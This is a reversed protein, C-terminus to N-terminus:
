RFNDAHTIAAAITATAENPTFYLPRLCKTITQTREIEEEEIDEGGTSSNHNHDGANGRL